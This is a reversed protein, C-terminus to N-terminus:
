EPTIHDLIVKTFEFGGWVYVVETFTSYTCTFLLNYM